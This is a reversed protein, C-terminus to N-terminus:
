SEKRKRYAAVSAIAVALGALLLVLIFRPIAGTAPLIFRLTDPIRYAHAPDDDKISDGYSDGTATVDDRHMDGKNPSKVTVTTEAKEGPKLTISGNVGNREIVNGQEDKITYTAEQLAKNVYQDEAGEIKDTISVNNLETNGTNEVVVKVDMTDDGNGIWVASPKSNADHGNIYKTTNIGPKQPTNAFVWTHSSDNENVEFVAPTRDILYGSPSLRERVIYTGYELNDFMGIGTGYETKRTRTTGDIKRYYVGGVEIDGDQPEGNVKEVRFAEFYAYDDTIPKSTDGNVKSVVIRGSKPSNEVEVTFEGRQPNANSDANIRNEANFTIPATRKKYGEPAETEVLVYNKKPDIPVTIKAKGDEGTTVTQILKGKEDDERLELKAGQLYRVVRLSNGTDEVVSGKNKNSINSANEPNTIGQAIVEVKAVTPRVEINEAIYTFTRSEDGKVVFEPSIYGGIYGDPAKSEVIRYKGPDNIQWYAVGDKSSDRGNGFSATWKGESFKELTFHADKVPNGDQDEKNIIVTSTKPISINPFYIGSQVPSKEGNYKIIEGKENIKFDTPFLRASMHDEPVKTEELRYMKGPVLNDIYAGSISPSITSHVKGTEVDIVDFTSGDIPKGDILQFDGLDGGSYVRDQNVSLKVLKIKARDNVIANNVGNITKGPKTTENGKVVINNMTNIPKLNGVSRTEELSYEGPTVSAFIVKGERNSEAEYVVNGKGVLRFKTGRLPKGSVDVKTFEVEGYTPAPPTPANDFNGLDIVAPNKRYGNAIDESKVTIVQSSVQYGNPAEVEHITYGPKVDVNDFTVIGQDNSVSAAVVDGQMTRLEFRAGKLTKDTGKEIKRLSISIPKNRLKNEVRNGELLSSQTKDKWFFTNYASPGVLDSPPNGFKDVRESNAKMPIVFEVRGGTKIKVGSNQVIRIAKTKKSPTNSWKLRSLVRDAEKQAEAGEPYQPWSDGNYYQITYGDPITPTRSTDYVNSFKSERKNPIGVDGVHPLVDYIVLNERENQTGNDLRLKYDIQAGPTTSVSSTWIQPKGDKNYDRIQKRAAMSSASTHPMWVNALSWKGSGVPPNEVENALKANDAKVYVNNDIREKDVAMNTQTTIHGVTLMEGATYQWPSASSAKYIVATQGTGRYNEVIEYTAGPLKAFKEDLVVNVVDINLPLLDVVEINNITDGTGERPVFGVTYHIFDDTIIGSVKNGNEDLGQQKKFAAIEPSNERVSKKTCVSKSNLERSELQACNKFSVDQSSDSYIVKDPDKLRSTLQITSKTGKRLPHGILEIRMEKGNIVKNRDFTINRSSSGEITHSELVAGRDDIVKVVVNGLEGPVIVGNYYMRPDLSHDRFVVDNFTRAANFPIIWPFVGNREAANDYFYNSRNGGHNGAPYKTIIDEEPPILRTFHNVTNDSVVMVPEDEPRDFPVMTTESNVEIRSDEKAGPFGFVIKNVVKSNKNHNNGKYVVSKGDESLEWGPNLSPDFKALRTPKNEDYLSSKEHVEYEPIDVVTVYEGVNRNIGNNTIIYEITNKVDQGPKDDSVFSSVREGKDNRIITQDYDDVMGNFGGGSIGINQYPQRYYGTFSEEESIRLTKGDKDVLTAKIPFKTNSPTVNEKFRIRFPIEKSEASSISPIVFSVTNGDRRISKKDINLSSSSVDFSNVDYVDPNVTIYIRANTLDKTNFGTRDIDIKGTMDSGILYPDKNNLELRMNTRPNEQIDVQKYSINIRQSDQKGVTYSIDKSSVPSYGIHAFEPPTYTVKEGSSKTESVPPAIDKGNEDVYHYTVKVPNILIKPLPHVNNPNSRDHTIITVVKPISTKNLDELFDQTLNQPDMTFTPNDRLENNRFADRGIRKVKGWDRPLEEIDNNGFSSSGISEVLGWRDPIDKINNSVLANNEIKTIKGWSNPVETIKNSNFVNEELVTINGWDDPIDTIQNYMFAGHGVRTVKGWDDPIDTITRNEGFADAGITSVNKWSDPLVDIQNFRFASDGIATINKWDDPISSINNEGFANNGISTVNGWDGSIEEIENNKFLSSAISTIKGWNDPISTINNNEFAGHNLNRVLGWNDPISKIKNSSFASRDIETVKGWTDPLTTIENNSFADYKINTVGGWNDPISTINNGNFVNAEIRTIKGWSGPLVEINNHLFAGHGIKEVKEWSSPIDVIDNNIFADPEINTVNDWSSPLSKINNGSFMGEKITTIKGWSDPITEIQNNVFAYNGVSQINKWSDPLSSIKNGNFANEGIQTIDGWSEISTIGKGKFANNSISKVPRGSTDVTPIWLQTKGSSLKKQGSSSLGTVTDGNFTFDQTQWGGGIEYEAWNIGVTVQRTEVTRVGTNYDNVSYIVDYVGPVSTDVSSYDVKISSTLNKTGKYNTATVGKLFKERTLEEGNKLTIGESFKIIPSKDVYSYKATIEYKDRDPTFTITVKDKNYNKITKVIISSEKGKEFAYNPDQLDEGFIDDPAITKGDQDVYHVVISVPNIVQGYSNNGYKETVIGRSEDSGSSSEIVVWSNNNEFVKDGLTTNDGVKANKIYNTSFASDGIKGVKSLDLDGSIRNNLFANDGLDTNSSLFDIFEIKNDRFANDGIEKTEKFTVDKIDNQAFADSGIYHAPIEVSGSIENGQFAQDGIKELTGEFSVSSISKKLFAKEGIEIVKKGNIESPITLNGDVINVSGSGTIIVGDDVTTTEFKGEQTSSFSGAQPKNSSSTQTASSSTKERTSTTNTTTSRGQGDDMFTATPSSSSAAGSEVPVVLSSVILSSSVVALLSRKINKNLGM